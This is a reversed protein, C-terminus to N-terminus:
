FNCSFGAQIPRVTTVNLYKARSVEFYYKNRCLSFFFNLLITIKCFCGGCLLKENVWEWRGSGVREGAGGCEGPGVERRAPMERGEGRRAAAGAEQNRHASRRPKALRGGELREM